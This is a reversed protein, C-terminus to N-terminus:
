EDEPARTSRKRFFYAPSYKAPIRRFARPQQDFDFCDSLDDARQDTTGMSPLGFAEETFKLISGFEHQQHSVYGPKAYPSVVILPVRFGLELSNYITPPVHDYWGGWDDWTIFIATNQWYSSAGIANVVAATWAPGAGDNTNPHDSYWAEPTIWVVNPLQGNEIDNLVQPPPSIVNAAMEAQNSWISYIPDVGHWIGAGPVDQYYKWTIGASDMENMLSTRSFCPYTKLSQPEAGKPNIVGVLSGSPSDCGGTLTKVPSEPNDSAKNPSGNSVTSTGSVLYQHSPFSPGQDSEFMDDAFAYTEALTYYPQVQRQPVYGYAPNAPCVGKCGEKSFGNMGGGNYETVFGSHTHTLDYPATMSEPQLPVSQGKINYGWSQTNAGPLLQFLNDVTRNEQVIIVVNQIPWSLDGRVRHRRKLTGADFQAHAMSPVGLAQSSQPSVANGACGALLAAGCGLTANVLFKKM